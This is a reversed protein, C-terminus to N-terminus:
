FKLADRVGAGALAIGVAKLAAAWEPSRLEILQAVGILVAGVKTKSFPIKPFRM